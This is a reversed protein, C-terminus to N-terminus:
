KINLSEFYSWDWANSGAPGPSVTLHLKTGSPVAPLDVSFPRDGRDAPNDRPNLPQRALVRTTGDPFQLESIFEVGDSNGGLSYAGPLLGAKFTLEREQGHLTFTLAGPSNLMFLERNEYTIRGVTTGEVASPLPNFRPFQEPIYGGSLLRIRTFCAWDWAADGDPGADTRLTLTSGAPLPPLVVREERLGRDNPETLPALLRDFIRAPPEGPKEVEVMFRVGNTNGQTYALPDIGYMFNLETERGTLNFRILGPPELQRVPLGAISREPMNPSKIEAPPVNAIPFRLVDLLRTATTTEVAPRPMAYFRIELRDLAFLAPHNTHVTLRNVSKGRGPQYLALLDRSDELVPDLLVPRAFLGPVIRRSNAQTIGEGALDLFILPSKYLFSRLQGTLSLPVSLSCLLMEDPKVAPPTIPENLSVPKIELLRPPVPAPHGPRAQFLVLGQETEVPHYLEIIERLTGADDEALFRQDITQLRLLFFEPRTAPEAVFAENRDQLWPTFVNFSGGGMPRPRYNLRNLTLYGHETGFFDVRARGVTARVLPLEYIKRQYDLEAELRKKEAAPRFLQRLSAADRGPLERLTALHRQWAQVGDGWLGAAFAVAALVWWTRSPRHPASEGAATATFLLVTPVAICVYQYFIYVHGDARVFGHKWEVFTFGALLLGGALLRPNRWGPLIGAAVLGIVGLLGVVGTLLALRPEELVMAANYGSSLELIGRWYGATHLPNQGAALLLVVLAALYAGLIWPLRRFNRAQLAQVVLLALTAAALLAQTGKFLTLLALYAALSCNLLLTRRGVALHCDLLCLGALLIALDYPLDEVLPAMVLLVALWTWRLAGGSARRFFWVVLAGLVLKTLLELLFRKGFLTGAYLFGYPVFGYPGAMPIVEPGFAFGRATFYAYSAYNSKDLTPDAVERAPSFFAVAILVVAGALLLRSVFGTPRTPEAAPTTTASM